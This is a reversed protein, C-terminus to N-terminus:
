CSLRGEEEEVEEDLGEIFSIKGLFFFSASFASLLLSLLLLMEELEGLVELEVFDSLFCTTVGFGFGLDSSWSVSSSSLSSSLLM